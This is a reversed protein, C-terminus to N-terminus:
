RHARKKVEEWPILQVSGGDIGRSRAEIEALLADDLPAADEPELTSMLFDVLRMQDIAPLSLAAEMVWEFDSTSFEQAQGDGASISKSM